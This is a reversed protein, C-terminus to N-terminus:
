KQLCIYRKLHWYFEVWYLFKLTGFFLPYNSYFHHVVLPPIDEGDKYLSRHQSIQDDCWFFVPIYYHYLRVKQPETLYLENLQFLRCLHLGYSLWKDVSEAVAEPTLGLKNILPGSCIFNFLDQVSSVEAPQTPFVSYLQGQGCESGAANNHHMSNDQMWSCGSGALLIGSLSFLHLVTKSHDVGIAAVIYVM